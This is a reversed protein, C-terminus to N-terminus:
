SESKNAWQEVISKAKRGDEEVKILPTLTRVIKEAGAERLSGEVIPLGSLVRLWVLLEGTSPRRTLGSNESALEGFLEIAENLAGPAQLIDQGLRQVVIERLRELKPFPIDYYVCRRLFPAPLNKESNSTIVVVPRLEREARVVEGRLEPIRFYMEDIENLLDNPFDLPAKDVEDILVVSRRPRDHLADAPVLHKVAEPQNAQLIAKGLANFTLYHVPDLVESKTQAAHFRGLTDYTYFLDRSLSTSKTEFKHPKPMGLEHALSYALQTKGTGPSGTLLLPQGSHLSVNVADILGTDPRYGSPDTFRSRGQTPVPVEEAAKEGNGRYWPFEM